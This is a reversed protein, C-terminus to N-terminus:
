GDSDEGVPLVLAEVPLDGRRVLRPRPEWPADHNVVGFGGYPAVNM